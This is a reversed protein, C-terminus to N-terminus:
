RRAWGKAQPTSTPNQAPTKRPNRTSQIQNGPWPCERCSHVYSCRSSAGSLRMVSYVTRGRRTHAPRNGRPRVPGTEGAGAHLHFAILGRRRLIEKCFVVRLVPEGHQHPALLRNHVERAGEVDGSRYREYLLVLVDTFECAPMTGSVGRNLEDIFWRGGFGTFVGHLEDGCTELLATVSHGGPMMEEKIYEVHPIDLLLQRIFEPSLSSGLPPDFNQIFVPKGMAEAVQRYYDVLGELGPKLVYPPLAIAGDAGAERSYRSFMVAVETSVGAVGAIMPIRGDVQKVAVDLARKREDDSLLWFESVMVPYVIGHVGRDVCFDIQRGLGEEDFLAM